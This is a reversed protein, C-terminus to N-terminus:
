GYQVGRLWSEVGNLFDSFSLYEVWQFRLKMREELQKTSVENNLWLNIWAEREGNKIPELALVHKTKLNLELELIHNEKMYKKLIPKIQEFAYALTERKHKSTPKLEKFAKMTLHLANEMM